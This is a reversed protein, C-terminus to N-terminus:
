WISRLYFANAAALAGWVVGYVLALRPQSILKGKERALHELHMRQLQIDSYGEKNIWRLVFYRLLFQACLGLTVVQTLVFFPRVYPLISVFVPEVQGM